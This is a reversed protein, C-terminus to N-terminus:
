FTFRVQAQLVRNSPTNKTTARGFNANQINFSPEGWNPHNLVNTADIRLQLTKDEALRFSKSLNADLTQRRPLQLKSHPFNGQTGPM